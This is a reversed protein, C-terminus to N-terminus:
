ARLKSAVFLVKALFALINVAVQLAAGRTTCKSCHM